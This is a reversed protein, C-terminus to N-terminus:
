ESIEPSAYSIEALPPGRADPRIIIDLYLARPHGAPTKMTQDILM